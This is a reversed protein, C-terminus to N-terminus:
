PPRGYKKAMEDLHDAYNGGTAFVAAPYLIPADLSIDALPVGQEPTVQAVASRLLARTQDWSHLLSLVSSADIDDAGRLLETAPYGREGVLVGAISRASGNRYTLLRYEVAM